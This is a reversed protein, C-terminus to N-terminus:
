KNLHLFPSLMAHDIQAGVGRAEGAGPVAGPLAPQEERGQGLQLIGVEDGAGDLLPEAGRSRRVRHVEESEGPVGLPGAEPRFRASLSSTSRSLSATESMM